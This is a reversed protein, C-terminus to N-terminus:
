KMYTHDQNLYNEVFESLFTVRYTYSLSWFLSHATKSNLLFVMLEKNEYIISLILAQKFCKFDWVYDYKDWLYKFSDIRDHHVLGVALSFLMAYEGGHPM